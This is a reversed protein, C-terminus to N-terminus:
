ELPLFLACLAESQICALRVTLEAMRTAGEPTFHTPEDFSYLELTQKPGLREYEGRSARNADLMLLGEDEAFRRASP